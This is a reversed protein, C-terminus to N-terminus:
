VDTQYLVIRYQKRNTTKSKDIREMKPAQRQKAALKSSFLLNLVMLDNCALSNRSKSRALYMFDAGIITIAHAFVM